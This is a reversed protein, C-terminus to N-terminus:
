NSFLSWTSHYHEFVPPLTRLLNSHPLHYQAIINPLWPTKFLMKLKLESNLLISAISLALHMQTFLSLVYCYIGQWFIWILLGPVRPHFFDKPLSLPSITSTRANNEEGLFNGHSIFACPENLVLRCDGACQMESPSSPQVTTCFGCASWLLWM